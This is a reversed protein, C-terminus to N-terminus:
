CCHCLGDHRPKVDDVSVRLNTLPCSNTACGRGYPLVPEMRWSWTDGHAAPRDPTVLARRHRCFAAFGNNPVTRPTTLDPSPTPPRALANRLTEGDRTYPQRTDTARRRKPPRHELPRTNVLRHRGRLSIAARTFLLTVTSPSHV